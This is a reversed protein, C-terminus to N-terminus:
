TAVAHLYGNESSVFAVGDAVAPSSYVPAGTDFTWRAEGTDANVAYLHHDTAGIYVTGGAVVPSALGNKRTSFKWRGHGDTDVARLKGDATGAYVVDDAVAPASFATGVDPSTWRREGDAARVAYLTGKDGGAYVVGDVVAPAGFVTEETTLSWRREGTAADLAYLSGRSAAYVVADAVVPRASVFGDAHHVWHQRGTLADVAHLGGDAGGVYAVGDAVAPSGPGGALVRWRQEGTAGDLAYLHDDVSNLYVVGDDVVPSGLGVGTLPRKWRARGSSVEVACLNRSGSIYVTGDAVAPSAYVLGGVPFRWLREGAIARPRRDSSGLDHINWGALVLGTVGAGFGLVQRRSPGREPRATEEAAGSAPPPTRETRARLMTTVPDPLWGPGTPAPNAGPDSEPDVALRELLEAVTPRAQPEKALCDAVLTRLLPPLRDLEPEEHVIRFSLAHSSGSGFPGSGTATYALVVGLSFVDSAAGVSKGTLQEPSMFGPTGVAGGTRTLASAEAAVSIGFDIVRPGDAALLINSPKLDRHVVGAAHIAELAEALGAGLARVPGEAWPGHVALAEGLAVGPVYATALWAPSGDPDADVVGATFVGNVRRAATVERAFRRRFEGDEALEPRVLKVAVARGGPSRGLYVRGMGGAGLRAVIRYRGVQRPDGADLAESAKM